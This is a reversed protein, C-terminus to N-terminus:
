VAHPSECNCRRYQLWATLKEQATFYWFAEHRPTARAEWSDDAFGYIDHILRYKEEWLATPLAVQVDAEAVPRPLYRRGGDAYAFLCLSHAQLRGDLWLATVARSVEVHRRHWTYEGCPGHTLLMDYRTEGLLSLVEQQVLADDLPSQEANDDMDGMSGVAGYRAVARSFKPARDRDSARCLTAIRCHWEPQLLLTGGAWLTEDDPHAVMVGVTGADLKVTDV